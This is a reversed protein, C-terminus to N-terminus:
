LICQKKRSNIDVFYKCDICGYQLYDSSADGGALGSCCGMSAIGESERRSYCREKSLANTIRKISQTFFSEQKDM